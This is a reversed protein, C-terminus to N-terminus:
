GASPAQPLLQERVEPSIQVDTLQDFPVETLAQRILEDAKVRQEAAKAIVLLTHFM